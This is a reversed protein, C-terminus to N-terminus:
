TRVAHARSLAATWEGTSVAEIVERFDRETYVSSGVFRKEGLAFANPAISARGGWIAINVITGGTGTADVAQDLTAQKGVCDFAVHVGEGCGLAHCEAPVDHHKPNFAHTAGFRKALRRKSESPESVIVHRAGRVVLAQVVALGIPGAGLVLASCGPIAVASIRIAHWGVALPEVLALVRVYSDAFLCSAPPFRSTKESPASNSCM